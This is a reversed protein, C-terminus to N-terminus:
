GAGAAPHLDSKPTTQNNRIILNPTKATFFTHM